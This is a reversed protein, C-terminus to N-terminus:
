IRPTVIVDEEEDGDEEYEPVLHVRTDGKDKEHKDEKKVVYTM